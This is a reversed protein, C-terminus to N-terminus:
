DTKGDQQKKMELMQLFFEKDEAGSEEIIKRYRSRQTKLSNASQAKTIIAVTEYSLGAFFLTILKLNRDQIEPVQERFRKMLNSCYHNLDDEITRYLNDDNNLEGIYDKFQKFVIDKKDKSDLQYYEKSISDIRRIRESYHTALLTANDHSLQIVNQNNVALQAMLEKLAQDKKWSRFFLYSMIIATMLLGIIGLLLSRKRTESLQKERSIAEVRFYDRQAASVSESLLARTLSDQVTTAHNLLKYAEFCKGRKLLVKSKYYDIDASDAEDKAILYARNLWIDVSDPKDLYHYALSIAELDSISYYRPSINRYISLSKSYDGQTLIGLRAYLAGARQYIASRRTPILQEIISYAMEYDEDTCYAVALSQKEYYLYLSDEPNVCFCDIAKKIYSISASINHNQYFSSGINRNILGLYRYDHIEQAKKAAKEFSVVASPFAKMNMQIRGYYYWAMMQERNSGKQSYYDIAVGILSDSAVDIYNKDMAASLYLAYKARYKRGKISNPNISKLLTLSSDPNTQLLSQADDIISREYSNNCGYLLLATLLSLALARMITFYNSLYVNNHNIIYAQFVVQLRGKKACAQNEILYAFFIYGSFIPFVIM